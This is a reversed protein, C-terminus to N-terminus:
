ADAARRIADVGPREGEGTKCERDCRRGDQMGAVRNIGNNGEGKVWGPIRRVVSAFEEIDSDRM